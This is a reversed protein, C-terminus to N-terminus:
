SASKHKTAPSNVPESSGRFAPHLETSRSSFGQNPSTSASGNQDELLKAKSPTELDEEGGRGEKEYEKVTWIIEKHSYYIRITATKNLVFLIEIFASRILCFPLNLHRSERASHLLDEAGKVIGTGGTRICRCCQESNAYEFDDSHSWSMLSVAIDNGPARGIKPLYV